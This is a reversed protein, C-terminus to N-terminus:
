RCIGLRICSEGLLYRQGFRRLQAIQPLPGTAHLQGSRGVGSLLLGASPISRSIRHRRQRRPQGDMRCEDETGFSPLLDRRLGPHDGRQRVGIRQTRVMHRQSARDGNEDQMVWVIGPESSGDFPNGTVAINYDGDNDISHDFGVVLCGGFGGLSVYATQAMRNEAYACAEAMTVATYNENVFQGPAPLFEYVKNCAANSAATRARYYTGEKPCVNVTFDHSVLIYENQMELKVTHAGEESATFAYEAKDGRQVEQGDVSWTYVADFANEIEVARLLITRGLSVNCTSQEITWSFDVEEPLRVGVMFSVADEGDENRTTLAFAFDGRADGLFTYAPETSVEKGDITWSYTTELSSAVVPKLELESGLLLTFGKDAGPLSITPPTLEFVDVRLEEEDMGGKNTVTLTIFYQGPKESSFRLAPESGIREGDLTWAFTADEAHEYSPRIEIERGAKAPYIATPSDLTIVPPDPLPDPNEGKSCAASLFAVAIAIQYLRKM